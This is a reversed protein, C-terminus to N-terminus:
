VLEVELLPVVPSQGELGLVEVDIPREIPPQIRFFRANTKIESKPSYLSHLYVRRMRSKKGAQHYLVWIMRKGAERAAAARRVGDLIYFEEAM